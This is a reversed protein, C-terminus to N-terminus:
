NQDAIHQTKPKHKNTPFYFITTSKIRLNVCNNGYNWVPRQSFHINHFTNISQFDDKDKRQHFHVMLLILIDTKNSSIVYSHM